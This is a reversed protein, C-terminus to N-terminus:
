LINSSKAARAITVRSLSQLRQFDHCRAVSVTVCLTGVNISRSCCDFGSRCLANTYVIERSNEGRVHWIKLDIKLKYIYLSM